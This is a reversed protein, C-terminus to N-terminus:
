LAFSLLINILHSYILFLIPCYPYGIKFIACPNKMLVCGVQTVAVQTLAIKTVRIVTMPLGYGRFDM